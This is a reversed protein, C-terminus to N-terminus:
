DGGRIARAIRDIWDQVTTNFDPVPFGKISATSAMSFPRVWTTSDPDDRGEQWSLHTGKNRTGRNRLKTRFESSIENLEGALDEGSYEHTKDGEVEQIENAVNRVAQDVEEIYSNDGNHDWDHQPINEFPPPDLDARMFRRVASAGIACYHKVTHGFLPMAKMNTNRNICWVSELIVRQIGRKGMMQTMVSSVCVIHHAEYTQPYTYPNPQRNVFQPFTYNEWGPDCVTYYNNGCDCPKGPEACFNEKKTGREHAM